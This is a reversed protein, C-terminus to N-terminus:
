TTRAAGGHRMRVLLAAGIAIAALGLGLGLGLPLALSSGGEEAAQAPTQAPAAVPEPTAAPPQEEPPSGPAAVSYSGFTHTQACEPVPFGDTVAVSWTGAAPFVVAARYTGEARNVLTAPFTRSEGSAASEIVVAPKADAMPTRGHQLVRVNATWTEGSAVNPLPSLGVTAWCGALAPGAVALAVGIAVLVLVTRRM